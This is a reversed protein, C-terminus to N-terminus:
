YAARMTLMASFGEGVYYYPTSGSVTGGKTGTTNFAASTVSSIGTVQNSNLLNSLSLKIEPAKVFGINSFRYGVSGDLRGFGPMGQDNMLTAFQASQYKYALNGFWHGDDYDLGIGATFNPAGPLQKGATPLYDSIITGGFTSGAPVNDLLQTHLVEASVYPRWNNIPRTGVEADIGYTLLSGANLTVSATSTSGGPDPATTSIQYNNFHGVFASVSTAFQQGQYRHGIEFMEGYEPPPVAIPGITGSTSSFTQALTYNPASHFTTALSAWFQNQENPKYRVGITPLTAVDNLTGSPIAGPMSDTVTRNVFVQKVGYELTWKDNISWTDGVFLMNTMTDTLTNRKELPGGPCAVTAGATKTVPNYVQCVATTPLTLQNSAAFPDQVSGDSNLPVFPGTQAQTAYEFWYGAVLKHDGITYTLKNIIGPRNTITVSPNYDLQGSFGANTIKLNGWYMGSASMTTVGGGNGDGYWYYPIVDFTLDKNITFNSPASLILNNFPNIHYQFYNSTNVAGLYAPAVGSQFQAMSLTNYFNNLEHNYVASFRITNGPSLDWVAKVEFNDREDRGPGVWHEEDMRSYSAYARVNGIQGTDYRAFERYLDHSGISFDVLAGPTKSPDLMYMNIVGGTAGIHPSDLDPSGQALSVQGINEADIYEQPYLAYNGSDNIPAGEITLGIHDSNFGRIKINGANLGVNDQSVQVVGPLLNIMQYPNATPPLKDIADRTVTSRSKTADEEIMYGGGLDQRTVGGPTAGTAQGGGNAYVYGFDTPSATLGPEALAHGTSSPATAATPAQVQTAAAVPVPKPRPKSAARVVPAPSPTPTPSPATQAYAAGGLATSAMLAALQVRFRM